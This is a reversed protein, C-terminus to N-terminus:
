GCGERAALRQGAEARTRRRKGQGAAGGGRLAAGGGGIRLRQEVFDGPVQELELGLPRGREAYVRPAM